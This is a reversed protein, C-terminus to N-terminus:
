VVQAVHCDVYHYMSSQIRSCVRRLFFTRLVVIMLLILVVMMIRM